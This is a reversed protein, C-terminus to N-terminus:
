DRRSRNPGYWKQGENHWKQMFYERPKELKRSSIVLREWEYQEGRNRQM